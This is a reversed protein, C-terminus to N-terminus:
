VIMWALGLCGAIVAVGSAILTMRMLWQRKGTANSRHDATPLTGIVPVPLIAEVEAVSTL